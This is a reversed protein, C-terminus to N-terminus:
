HANTAGKPPAAARCGRGPAGGPPRAAAAGDAAPHESLGQGVGGASRRGVRACSIFWPAHPRWERAACLPRASHGCVFPASRCVRVVCAVSPATRGCLTLLTSRRRQKQRAILVTGPASCSRLAAIVCVRLACPSFLLGSKRSRWASSARTGEGGAATASGSADWSRGHVKTCARPFVGPLLGSVFGWM